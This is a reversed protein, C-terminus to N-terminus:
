ESAREYARGTVRKILGDCSEGDKRTLEYYMIMIEGESMRNVRWLWYHAKIVYIMRLFWAIVASHEESHDTGAKALVVYKAKDKIAKNM